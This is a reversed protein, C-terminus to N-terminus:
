PWPSCRHSVGPNKSRLHGEPVPVLGLSQSHPSPGWVCIVQSETVSTQFFIDLESRGKEVDWQMSCLSLSVWLTWKLSYRYFHQATSDWLGGGRWQSHHEPLFMPPSTTEVWFQRENGDASILFIISLSISTTQIQCSDAWLCSELLGPVDERVNSQGCWVHLWM